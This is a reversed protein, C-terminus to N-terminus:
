ARGTDLSDTREEQTVVPAGNAQLLRLRSATRQQRLEAVALAQEEAELWRQWRAIEGDGPAGNARKGATDPLHRAPRPPLQGDIFTRLVASPPQWPKRPPPRENHSAPICPGGHKWRSSASTVPRGPTANKAIRISMDGGFIASSPRVEGPPLLPQVHASQMAVISRQM